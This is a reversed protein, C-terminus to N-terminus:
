PNSGCASLIRFVPKAPQVPLRTLSGMGATTWISGDMGTILVQSESGGAHLPRLAAPHRAGDWLSVASGGHDALIVPAEGQTEDLIVPVGDSLFGLIAGGSRGDPTKRFTYGAALAGTHPELSVVALGAQTLALGWLVGHDMFQWTFEPVASARVPSIAGTAPEVSVLHGAATQALIRGDSWGLVRSYGAGLQVPGRGDVSLIRLSGGAGKSSDLDAYQSGSDSRLTPDANTAQVPSVTGRAVDLAEIGTETGVLMSCNAILAAQPASQISAREQGGISPLVVAATALGLGLAAAGNLIRRSNM